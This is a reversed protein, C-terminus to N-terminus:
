KLRSKKSIPARLKTEPHMTTEHLFQILIKNSNLKYAVFSSLLLECGIQVDTEDVPEPNEDFFCGYRGSNNVSASILTLTSVM